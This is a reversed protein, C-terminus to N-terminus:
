RRKEAETVVADIPLDADLSGRVAVPCAHLLAVEDALRPEEREREAGVAPVEAARVDPALRIRHGLADLVAARGGVRENEM